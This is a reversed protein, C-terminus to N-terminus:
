DEDAGALPQGGIYNGDGAPMEDDHDPQVGVGTAGAEHDPADPPVRTGPQRHHGGAHSPKGHDNSKSV